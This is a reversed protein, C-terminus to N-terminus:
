SRGRRRSGTRGRVGARGLMTRVKEVLEEPTFPKALVGVSPDDTLQPELLREAYGSIFLVPLSREARLRAALDTGSMGPMVVDTILLDVDGDYGALRDLAQAGGAAALVTYGASTLIRRALNRVDSEDEVLLIRGTAPRSWTTGAPLDPMAPQGPVTASALPLLLTVTTGSGPLSDIRLSGGAQTVIGYVAALGLGTGKDVPKTTFFPELCHELTDPEMGTGTDRVAVAVQGGAPSVTIYLDGGNPMADRSNTALNFLVQEFQGRDIRVQGASVDTSLHLRVDEGLLRRIMDATETVVAAPELVVPTVVDRRSITLLKRTLDAGRNGARHIAEVRERFPDDPDLKRLLGDSYGLIVTLLNNFDHAIGGALRGVAELRQAQQFQEALQRRETEDAAVVLLGDAAPVSVVSVDLVRREDTVLERSAPRGQRRADEGLRRIAATTAPDFLAIRGDPGVTPSGFMAEAAPNWSRVRGDLTLDVIAVPSADVLASLRAEHALSVEGLRANALTISVMEALLGLLSEDQEDFPRGSIALLLGGGGDGDALPAAVWHAAPWSGPLLPAVPTGSRCPRTTSGLAQWVSEEPGAAQPDTTVLAGGALRLFVRDARLVRQASRVATNLRSTTDPTAEISLLGDLLQRLRDSYAGSLRANERADRYLRAREIALGARNGVEEVAALDSPRYGRRSALTGMVVVGLPHGAARVPVVVFSTLQLAGMAEPLRWDSPDADSDPAPVRITLEGHGTTMVRRLEDEGVHALKDVLGSLTPDIHRAARRSLQQNDALYGAVYDAFSGLATEVVAALVQQEDDATMLARSADGLLTLHRRAHEAGLRARRHADDLRAREVTLAARDAMFRLLDLQDAPFARTQTCGLLLVGTVRGNVILPAAAASACGPVDGTLVRAQAAVQGVLGRGFLTAPLDIDDGAQRVLQGDEVLYIAAADAPVLSQLRQLLDALVEALPLEAAPSRTLADLQAMRQYADALTRRLRREAFVHRLGLLALLVAVVVLTVAQRYFLSTPTVWAHVLVGLGALFLVVFLATLFRERTPGAQQEAPHAV